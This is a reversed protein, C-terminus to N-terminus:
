ASGVGEGLSQVGNTAVLAPRWLHGCHQCLHTRHPPNTWPEATARFEKLADREEPADIHLAHCKPCHLIMDIPAATQRICRTKGEYCAFVCDCEQCGIWETMVGGGEDAPWVIKREIVRNWTITGRVETLRDGPKVEPGMGRVRM